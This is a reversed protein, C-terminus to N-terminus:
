QREYEQLELENSFGGEKECLPIFVERIYEATRSGGHEREDIAAVYDLHIVVKELFDRREPGLPGFRPATAPVDARPMRLQEVDFLFNGEEDAQGWEEDNDFYPEPYRELAAEYKEITPFREPSRRGWMGVCERCALGEDMRGGGIVQAWVSEVRFLRECVGCAEELDYEEPSWARYLEIRM